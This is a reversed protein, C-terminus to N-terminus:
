MSVNGDSFDEMLHYRIVSATLHKAVIIGGLEERWIFSRKHASSMEDHFSIHSPCLVRLSNLLLIEHFGFGMELFIM